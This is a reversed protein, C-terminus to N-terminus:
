LGQRDGCGSGPRFRPGARRLGIAVMECVVPCDDACLMAPSLKLPALLLIVDAFDEVHARSVRAAPRRTAARPSLVPDVGSASIRSLRDGGCRDPGGPLRLHRGAVHWARRREPPDRQLRLGNDAAPEM